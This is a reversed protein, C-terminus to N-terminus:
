VRARFVLMWSTNVGVASQGTFSDPQMQELRWGVAEVSEIADAVSSMDNDPLQPVQLRYAFVRHGAKLRAQAATDIRAAAVRDRFGM